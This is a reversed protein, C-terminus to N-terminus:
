AGGKEFMPCNIVMYSPVETIKVKGTKKNTQRQRIMDPKAEWGPVPTLSQMWSCDLRKCQWCLTGKGGCKTKQGATRKVSM